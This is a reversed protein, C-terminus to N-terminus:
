EEGPEGGYKDMFDQILHRIVQHVSRGHRSLLAPRSFLAGWLFAWLDNPDVGRGECDDVRAAYEAQAILLIRNVDSDVAQRVLDDPVDEPTADPRLQELVQQACHETVEGIRAWGPLAQSVKMVVHKIMAPPRESYMLELSYILAVDDAAYAALAEALKGQAKLVEARGTQAVIGDGHDLAEASSGEVSLARDWGM